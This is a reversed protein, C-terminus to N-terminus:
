EGVGGAVKKVAGLVKDVEAETLTPYLPLLICRAAACAFLMALMEVSNPGLWAIRSGSQAGTLHLWNLSARIREAFAAYTEANDNSRIAVSQPSFEQHREIWGAISRM